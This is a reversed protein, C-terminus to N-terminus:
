TRSTIKISFYTVKTRCLPGHLSSKQAKRTHLVLAYPILLQFIELYGFPFLYELSFIPYYFHKSYRIDQINILM